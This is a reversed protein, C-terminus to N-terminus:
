EAEGANELCARSRLSGGRAAEGVNRLHTASPLRVRPERLVTRNRYPGSNGAAGACIGAIPIVASPEQRPNPRRLAREALSAPDPRTTAM